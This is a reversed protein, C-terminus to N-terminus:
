QKGRIETTIEALHGYKLNYRSNHHITGIRNTAGKFGRWWNRDAESEIAPNEAVALLQSEIGDLTSVQAQATAQAVAVAVAAAQAAELEAILTLVTEAPVEGILHPALINAITTPAPAPTAASSM